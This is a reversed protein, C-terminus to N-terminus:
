IQSDFQKTKNALIMRMNGSSAEQKYQIFHRIKFLSASYNRLFRVPTVPALRELIDRNFNMQFIYVETNITRNDSWKKYELSGSTFIYFNRQQWVAYVASHPVGLQKFYYVVSNFVFSTINSMSPFNTHVWREPHSYMSSLLDFSTSSKDTCPM